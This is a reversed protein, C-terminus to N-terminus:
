GTALLIQKWIATEDYLTWERRLGRPGFEAHTMGMVYLYAGTPPGFPGPGDHRGYLSWRLAARPPQGPADIGIRHEVRFAASPMASRLGLWFRDAAAHGMDTVGGPYALECARDYAAPIPSLDGDMLRKLLTELRDSTANRAGRGAYPGERDTDPSLPRVCADQGGEREILAATWSKPDEGLQRLIAGRDVVQWEDCVRDDACWTEAITRCSVARGTPAGYVGDGSHTARSTMRHSSLFGSRGDAESPATAAWIVDEGLLDRDPFEALTSLTAAVVADSGLVVGSPARVVVNAAYHRRLAAIDRGEWIRRTIGLVFDPVDQWVPDFGPFIPQAPPHEANM